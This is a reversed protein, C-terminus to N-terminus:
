RLKQAKAAHIAARQPDNHDLFYRALQQQLGYEVSHRTLGARSWVFGLMTVATLLALVGGLNDRPLGLARRALGSGCLAVFLSLGFGLILPANQLLWNTPLALRNPPPRQGPPQCIGPLIPRLAENKLLGLVMKADPRVTPPKLFEQEDGTAMFHEVQEEAALNMMRTPLLLQDVVIQSVKGMQFFMIGAFVLPALPVLRPERHAFIPVLLMLAFIDAMVLINLVDMYRSAPFGDGYNARGFALATSQLGSWLAMGLLFEAGRSAPFNGRFYFFLLLALPALPVIWLFQFHEVFPWALNHALAVIFQGFTHARLPIDERMSVQMALGAAILAVCVGFTIADSRELRRNKLTRLLLPGIVATAALFGSAMTFLGAIGSILGLWWRPSGAKAFGLGAIAGLAFVSTLYQLSNIAWLTSEGAYPLAYLPALLCCILWAQTRGFLKWIIAALACAYGAYIFCNVTMQLMPEWRGNLKILTLDLLKTFLIRHENFPTFFDRWSLHGSMWPQFFAAAEYWQDWLPLPSGYLQVLWLKAGLVTLFLAGLWVGLRQRSEAIQM